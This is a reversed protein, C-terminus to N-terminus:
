RNDQDCQTYKPHTQAAHWSVEILPWFLFTTSQSVSLTWHDLLAYNVQNPTLRLTGMNITSHRRHHCHPHPVPWLPSPLPLLLPHHHLQISQLVQGIAELALCDILISLPYTISILFWIQLHLLTASWLTWGVILIVPPWTFSASAWQNMKVYLWMTSAKTLCQSTTTSRHPPSPLNFFCFLM